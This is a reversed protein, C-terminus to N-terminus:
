KMLVMKKTEIFSGAKLQYLYVGSPLNVADWNLEYTGASKEENVLSTIENGILDFVKISIFSAESISYRLTTSPNFPNPFNEFLKISVPNSSNEEIGTVSINVLVSDWRRPSPSKFGANVTYTGPGPATLTFPNNSTSNNVAVVTGNGDVLEGAISSTTGSVTIAVDLGTVSASVLGDELTHCGSGDCGPNTGNFSPESINTSVVLLVIALALLLTIYKM